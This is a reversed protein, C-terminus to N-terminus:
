RRQFEFRNLSLIARLRLIQNQNQNLSLIPNLWAIKRLQIWDIVFHLGQMQILFRLELLQMRIQFRFELLRM